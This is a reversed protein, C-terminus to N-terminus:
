FKMESEWFGVTPFKSAFDIVGKRLDTISSIATGDGIHNKFDTLKKGDVKKKEELTIQVARDIFDAVKVFDQEMLGRSTMAPTGIRLGGPILASKDGPVTNKNAAINVLELVREVRAGDVGKSRLDVLLLHNDTGGSVLDYNLQLFREAFAANNKM